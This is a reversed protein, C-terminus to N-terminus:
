LCKRYGKMTKATTKHREITLSSAQKPAECFVAIMAIPDFRVARLGSIRPIKNAKAMRRVSEPSIQLVGALQEKTMAGDKAYTLFKEKM